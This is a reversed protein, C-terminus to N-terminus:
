KELRVGEAGLETEWYRYGSDEAIKKLVGADKHLCLVVGGGGAGCLKAHGGAKIVDDAFSDIEPTSVGLEALITQAKDMIAGIKDTKQSTLNGKIEAALRGLEEVRPNRYSEELERVASVLEGTTKEPEGTNVLVIGKIGSVGKISEVKPPSGKVFWIAGGYCCATNDGGSPSGHLLQELKFAIENNKEKTLKIGHLEAIARPLCVALSASSGMGAGAPVGSEIVLSLGKEANLEMLSAGVIAKVTDMKGKKMASFLGSFNKKSVGSNWLDRIKRGFEMVEGTDFEKKIGFNRLSISVSDAPEASVHCRLGVAVLIAPKGYVVAHEGILHIKGPASVSVM